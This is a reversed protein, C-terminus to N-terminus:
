NVSFVTGSLTIPIDSYLIHPLNWNETYIAWYEAKLQSSHSEENMTKFTLPKHLWILTIQGGGVFLM